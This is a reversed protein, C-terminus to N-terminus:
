GKGFFRSIAGSKRSAGQAVFCDRIGAERKAPFSTVFCDRENEEGRSPSPLLSPHKGDLDCEFSRGGATYFKAIAFCGRPPPTRGCSSAIEYNMPTPRSEKGAEYDKNDHQDCRLIETYM